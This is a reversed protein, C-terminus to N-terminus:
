RGGGVPVTIGTIYSAADSLLWLITEAVEEASGMRGLPVGPLLREVREPIGARAHIETDILGPNVANVRIGEGAVEKALGATLSDLAGKSAAYHVWEDAGGLESARSSVNVIAGGPGGHRTSLRKVAERACLFAGVVNVELVQRLSDRDIEAVRCVPGTIGANNVLGGLPGLERDCTEFLRLIDEERAVDAGVAIARGGASLIEQAIEEAEAKGSRYNLCVQYGAAAALRATAAGIGRSAGTIILSKAM